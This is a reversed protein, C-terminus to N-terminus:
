AEGRIKDWRSKGHEPLRGTSNGNRFEEAGERVLIHDFMGSNRRIIIRRAFRPLRRNKGATEQRKKVLRCIPLAQRMKEPAGGRM